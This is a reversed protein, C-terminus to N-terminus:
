KQQIENPQSGESESDSKTPNQQPMLTIGLSGLLDSPPMSFQFDIGDSKMNLKTILKYEGNPNHQKAENSLRALFNHADGLSPVIATAVFQGFDRKLRLHYDQCLTILDFLGKDKTLKSKDWKKYHDLLWEADAQVALTVSTANTNRSYTGVPLGCHQTFNRMDQFFAFAWCNDELKKIYIKFDGERETKRYIQTWEQKFHELVSKASSLFNMLLRDLELMEDSVLEGGAALLSRTYNWWEEYNRSLIAFLKFRNNASAAIKTYEALKDQEDETLERIADIHIGPGTVVALVPLKWKTPDNNM